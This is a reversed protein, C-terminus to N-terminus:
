AKEKRECILSKRKNALAFIQKLQKETFIREIEQGAYATIYDTIMEIRESYSKVDVLQDALIKCCLDFEKDELLGRM